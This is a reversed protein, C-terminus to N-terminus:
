VAGGDTISWSYTTTLSTRAAEAAGGPTYKATGAHFNIGTAPAQVEWAVLLADYNVTSFATGELLTQLATAGTLAGIDFHSIGQNFVTCYRFMSQITTVKATDFNAVSQNFVTCSYFMYSMDTVEATDFNTVSQNFAICSFFMSQMTTVNATNFNAVSQNFLVCGYFMQLMTAVKATDFNAVSQNFQYCNTFMGAMSEVNSTDFNSVLQNFAQCNFFMNTMDTVKSTDFNAVSQNFATCGFFMNSMNIVNSTDLTALSPFTTISSCNRFARFLTLTGTMDLTDTAPITLNTCGYFYGESNGLRLPGWSTISLLKLKDGGNNFQWGTITGWITVIYTGAGGAFTHTKEAQNWVTIHDVASGDDWSVYFDYEGTSV